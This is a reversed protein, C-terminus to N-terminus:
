GSLSLARSQFASAGSGVSLGATAAFSAGAAGAKLDYNSELMQRVLEATVPDGFRQWWMGADGFDNVDTIHGDAHFYGDNTDAATEPRQYKPGVMCGTTLLAGLMCLMLSTLISRRTM